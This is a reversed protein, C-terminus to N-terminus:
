LLNHALLWCGQLCSKSLVQLQMVRNKQLAASCRSYKQVFRSALIGLAAAMLPANAVCLPAAEQRAPVVNAEVTQACLAAALYYGEV